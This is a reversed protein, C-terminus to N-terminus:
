TQHGRPTQRGRVHGMAVLALAESGEEEASTPPAPPLVPRRGNVIMGLLRWPDDVDRYPNLQQTWLMWLLVGFSFVDIAAANAHAEDRNGATGARVLEPAMLLPTGVATTMGSRQAILRSIGFDCLKVENNETLLVIPRNVVATVLTTTSPLVHHDTSESLTLCSFSHASM